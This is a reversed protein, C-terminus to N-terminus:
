YGFLLLLPTLLQGAGFIMVAKEEAKELPSFVLRTDHIMLSKEIEKPAINFRDQFDSFDRNAEDDITVKLDPKSEVRLTGVYYIEGNRPVNFAVGPVFNTVAWKGRYRMERILYKGAKKSWVFQGGEDVKGWILTKDEVKILLVPGWGLPEGFFGKGGNKKKGDEVLEIRGFVISSDKGAQRLQSTTEINTPRLAFIKACGGSALALWVLGL